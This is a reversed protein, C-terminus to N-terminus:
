ISAMLRMISQNSRYKFHFPRGRPPRAFKRKSRAVPSSGAVDVKALDCEVLQTIGAHRTPYTGRRAVTLSVEQASPSNRNDPQRTTGVVQCGSLGVVWM